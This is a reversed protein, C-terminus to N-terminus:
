GTSQIKFLLSNYVQLADIALSTDDVTLRLEAGFLSFFLFVLVRVPASDTILDEFTYLHTFPLCLAILFLIFTPSLRCTAQSAESFPFFLLFCVRGDVRVDLNLRRAIPRMM